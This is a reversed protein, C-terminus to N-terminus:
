VLVGKAIPNFHCLKGVLARILIDLVIDALTTVDKADSLINLVGVVGLGDHM